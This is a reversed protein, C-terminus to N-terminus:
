ENHAIIQSRTSVISRHLADTGTMTNNIFQWVTVVPDIHSLITVAHARSGAVPVQKLNATLCDISDIVNARRPRKRCILGVKGPFIVNAIHRTILNAHSRRSGLRREKINSDSM